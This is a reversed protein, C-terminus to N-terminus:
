PQEVAEGRQLAALMEQRLQEATKRLPPPPPDIWLGEPYEILDMFQSLMWACGAKKYNQEYSRNNLHEFFIRYNDLFTEPDKPKFVFDHELEECTPGKFFILSVIRNWANRDNFWHEGLDQYSPFKLSTDETM